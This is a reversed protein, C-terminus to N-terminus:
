IVSVNDKTVECREAEETRSRKTKEREEYEPYETNMCATRTSMMYPLFDRDNDIELQEMVDSPWFCMTKDLSLKFEIIRTYTARQNKLVSKITM